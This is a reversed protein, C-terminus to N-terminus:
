IGTRITLVPERGYWGRYPHLKARLEEPYSKRLLHHLHLLAQDVANVYNVTEQPDPPPSDPRHVLRNRTEAGRQLEKVFPSGEGAVHELVSGYLKHLPPSPLEMLLVEFRPELRM